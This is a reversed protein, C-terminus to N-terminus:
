DYQKHPKPKWSSGDEKYVTLNRQVSSETSNIPTAIAQNYQTQRRPKQCLWLAEIITTQLPCSFQCLWRLQALSGDAVNPETAGVEATNQGRALVGKKKVTITRPECDRLMIFQLKMDSVNSIM